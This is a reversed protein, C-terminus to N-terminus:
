TRLERESPRVRGFQGIRLDPDGEKGCHCRGSGHGPHLRLCLCIFWASAVPPATDGSIAEDTTRTVPPVPENPEVM